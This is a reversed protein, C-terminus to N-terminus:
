SWRPGGGHSLRPSGLTGEVEATSLPKRLILSNEPSELDVVRLASRYNEQLQEPSYGGDRGPPNFRLITHTAHCQVCAMGDTGPRRTSCWGGSKRTVAASSGTSRM